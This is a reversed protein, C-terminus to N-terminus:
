RPTAILLGPARLTRGRYCCVGHYTTQGGAHIHSPFSPIPSYTPVYTRLAEEEEEEAEAEM